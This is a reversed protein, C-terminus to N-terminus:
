LMKLLKAIKVNPSFYSDFESFLGDMQDHLDFADRKQERERERECFSM